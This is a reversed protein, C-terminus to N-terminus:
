ILQGLIMPDPSATEVQYSVGGPLGVWFFGSSVVSLYTDSPQHIMIPDPLDYGEPLIIWGNDTFTDREDDSLGIVEGDRDWFAEGPYFHCPARTDHFTMEVLEDFSDKTIRFLNLLGGLFKAGQEDLRVVAYDYGESEGYEDNTTARMLLIKKAM